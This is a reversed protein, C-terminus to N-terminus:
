EKIGNLMVDLVKGNTDYGTHSNLPNTADVAEVPGVFLGIAYWNNNVIVNRIQINSPAGETPLRFSLLDDPDTFAVLQIPPAGQTKKFAAGLVQAPHDVPEAAEKMMPGMGSPKQEDTSLLAYQNAMMYFAIRAEAGTGQKHLFSTWGAQQADTWKWPRGYIVKDGSFHKLVNYTITSGLSETLVVMRDDSKLEAAMRSIGTAVAWEFEGRGNSLYLAADTLGWEVVSHKLLGNV